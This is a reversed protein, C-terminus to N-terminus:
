KSSKFLTFKDLTTKVHRICFEQDTGGFLKMLPWDKYDKRGLSQLFRVRPLILEDMSLTLYTPFIVLDKRNKRLKGTLFKAKRRTESNNLTQTLIAPCRVCILACEHQSFGFNRLAALNPAIHMETNLCFVSPERIIIKKVLHRDANLTAELYNVIHRLDATFRTNLLAPFKMIMERIESETLKYHLLFSMRESLGFKSQKLLEPCDKIIRGIQSVSLGLRSELFSAFPILRSEEIFNLLVPNNILLEKLEAATVKFRDYLTNLGREFKSEFGMKVIAPNSKMLWQVEQDSAKLRSKLFEFTTNLYEVSISLIRPHKLVFSCLELNTLQLKQKISEVVSQIEQRELHFAKPNRESLRDLDLSEMGLELLVRGTATQHFVPILDSFPIPHNPPNFQGRKISYQRPPTMEDLEVFSDQNRHKSAGPSIKLDFLANSHDFEDALQRVISSFVRRRLFWVGKM